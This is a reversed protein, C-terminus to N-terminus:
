SLNNGTDQSLISVTICPPLLIVSYTSTYKRIFKVTSISENYKAAIKEFTGVLERRRINEAAIPANDAIPITKKGSIAIRLSIHEAADSNKIPYTAVLGIFIFLFIFNM